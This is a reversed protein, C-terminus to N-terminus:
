KKSVLLERDRGEGVSETVLSPDTSLYMHVVRREWPKLGRLSKQVGTELVEQKIKEAM